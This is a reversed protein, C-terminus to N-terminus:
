KREKRASRIVEFSMASLISRHFAVNKLSDLMGVFNVNFKSSQIDDEGVSYRYEEDMAFFERSAEIM